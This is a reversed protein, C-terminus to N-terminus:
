NFPTLMSRLKGMKELYKNYPISIVEARQLGFENEMEDLMDGPYYLIVSHLFGDIIYLGVTGDQYTYETYDMDVINASNYGRGRLWAFGADKDSVRFHEMMTFKGNSEKLSHIECRNPYVVFKEVDNGDHVGYYHVSTIEHMKKAGVEDLKKHIREFSEVRYKKEQPKM